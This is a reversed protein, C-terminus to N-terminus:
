LIQGSAGERRRLRTAESWRQVGMSLLVLQWLGAGVEMAVMLAVLVVVTVGLPGRRSTLRLQAGPSAQVQQFLQMLIHFRIVKAPLNYGTFVHDGHHTM